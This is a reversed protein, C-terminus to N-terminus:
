SAGERENRNPDVPLLFSVITGAGEMSDIAFFGRGGYLLEIRQCVNALGIGAAGQEHYSKRLGANVKELQQVSMGPGEDAVSGAIYEGDLRLRIRIDVTHDYPSEGHKIANEVLPQIVFCPITAELVEPEIEMSVQLREGFRLQQIVLLHEILTVEQRVSVFDQKHQAHYRLLHGLSVLGMETSEYKGSKQTMRVMELANYMFHPNIQSRLSQIEAEQRLLRNRLVEEVLTRIRESMQKFARALRGVEDYRGADITIHFQNSELNRAQVTLSRLNRTIGYSILVSLWVTLLIGAVVAWGTVKQVNHIGQNLNGSPIMAVIKWGTKLSTNYSFLYSTQELRVTRAAPEEKAGADDGGITLHFLADWEQGIQGSDPSYVIRGRQDLIYVRSDAGFDLPAMMEQVPRLSGNVQLMGAVGRENLNRVPQVISIAYRNGKSFAGSVIGLVTPSYEKQESQTTMAFGPDFSTQTQWMGGELARIYSAGSPLYFVVDLLDGDSQKIVARLIADLGITDALSGSAAGPKDLALKMLAAYSDTALISQSDSILGEVYRDMQRNVQTLIQPIYQRVERESASRFTTLAYITVSVIVAILLASFLISLKWVMPWNRFQRFRFKM